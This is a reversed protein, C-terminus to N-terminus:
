WDRYSLRFLNQGLEILVQEFDTGAIIDNIEGKVINGEVISNDLDAKLVTGNAISNDLNSKLTNGDLISQNLGAEADTIEDLKGEIVPVAEVVGEVDTILKNLVPFENTSEITEDNVISRRM